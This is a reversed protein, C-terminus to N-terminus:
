GDSDPYCPCHRGGIDAKDDIGVSELGLDLTASNEADGSDQISLDCNVTAAYFLAIKVVIAHQPEVFNWHKFSIEDVVILFRTADALWSRHDDLGSNHVGYIRCGPHLKRAHRDIRFQELLLHWCLQLFLGCCM